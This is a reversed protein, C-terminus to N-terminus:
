VSTSRKGIATSRRRTRRPELPCCLDALKDAIEKRISMHIETQPAGPADLMEALRQMTMGPKKLYMYLGMCSQPLPDRAVKRSSGMRLVTPDAEYNRRLLHWHAWSRWTVGCALAADRAAEVEDRSVPYYKGPEPPRTAKARAMVERPTGPPHKSAEIPGVGHKIMAVIWQERLTDVSYEARRRAM